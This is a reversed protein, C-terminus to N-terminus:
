HLNPRRDPPVDDITANRSRQIARVYMIIAWRDKEPIQSHYAPMTRIGNSITNFIQGVPMQAYQPQTLNSPQVWGTATAGVKLARQHIMGNGEAGQGHCPTCYITFRERGRKMTHDSIEVQPPFEQAWQGDKIGHYFWEDAKLEGRAVTGDPPRRSARGDPFIDSETQARQYTQFDMDPIIHYHPDPSTSARWKAIFAFPVLALVASLLIFGMIPKPVRRMAPSTPYHCEEIATAGAERLLRETEARDFKPDDTEIAIFYGNTTVKLFLDKKFLPHWVQPLKNLLWISWFTTIGALLVTLEFAIPIQQPLSFYPKGAAVWHWSWANMYWQMLIALATGTMGAAFVLIPLITPQIGMAPDIGHIPFPSFSDWKSYGADRVAEAAHVLAGPSDYEALLGYFKDEVQDDNQPNTESPQM